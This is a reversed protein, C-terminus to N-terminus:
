VYIGKTYCRMCRWSIFNSHWLYPYSDCLVSTVIYVLLEFTSCLLLTHLVFFRKIGISLYMKRQLSMLEYFWYFCYIQYLLAYWGSIFCELGFYLSYIDCVASTVISVILQFMLLSNKQDCCLKTVFRVLQRSNGDQRDCNGIGGFSKNQM